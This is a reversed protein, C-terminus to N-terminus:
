IRRQAVFNTSAIVNCINTFIWIIVSSTTWLHETLFRTRLFKAFNVPFVKALAEKKNFNYAQM